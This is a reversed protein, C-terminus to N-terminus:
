GAEAEVLIDEKFRRISINKLNVADKVRDIGAGEVSTKAERGGIIRPAIFFMFKDALKNEILGAILEGGGEVLIDVIGLKSLKRLMDRLDVKGRRTACFLVSIGRKACMKAKAFSARKTTAVLVSHNGATSFLKSTLPTRLASDVVIRLPQKAGPVRSLLRPDDRVVTNAGVMVADVEARMRHVFRRSDAGTIWKSDGSNAAIKGDLSEAAKIRVYPMKKTIFKIFPRNMAEAEDRMVGVTTEIGHARLKKMGRGDTIPNPDRM